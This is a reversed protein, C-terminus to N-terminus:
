FLIAKKQSKYPIIGHRQLYRLIEESQREQEYERAEKEEEIDIARVPVGGVYRSVRWEVPIDADSIGKLTSYYRGVFTQIIHLKKADMEYRKIFRKQEPYRWDRYKVERFNL